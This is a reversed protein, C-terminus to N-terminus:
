LGWKGRVRLLRSRLAGRMRRPALRRRVQRGVRGGARMRRDHALGAPRVRQGWPRRPRGPCRGGHALANQLPMEVPEVLRRASSRERKEERDARGKDRTKGAHVRGADPDCGLARARRTRQVINYCRLVCLRPSSYDGSRIEHQRPARHGVSRGQVGSSDQGCPRHCRARLVSTSPDSGMGNMPM